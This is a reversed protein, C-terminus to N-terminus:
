VGTRALLPRLRELIDTVAADGKSGGEVKAETGRGDPGPLAFRPILRGGYGGDRLADRDEDADFELFRVGALEADLKGAEIAEHFRQCPECWPAGVYVVLKRGEADAKRRSEQVLDALVAGAATAKVFEPAGKAVPAVESRGSQAKRRGAGDKPKGVCGIALVAALALVTTARDM